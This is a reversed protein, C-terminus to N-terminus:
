YGRFSFVMGLAVPDTPHAYQNFHREKEIVVVLAVGDNQSPFSLMLNRFKNRESDRKGWCGAGKAVDRAKIEV